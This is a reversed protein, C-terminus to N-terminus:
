SAMMVAPCAGPGLSCELDSPGGPWAARAPSLRRPTVVSAPANPHQRPWRLRRGESLRVGHCGSLLGDKEGPWGLPWVRREGAHCRTDLVYLPPVKPWRLGYFLLGDQSPATFRKVRRSAPTVFTVPRAAVRAMPLIMRRLGRS